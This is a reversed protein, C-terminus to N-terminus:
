ANYYKVRQSLPLFASIKRLLANRSALNKAYKILMHMSRYSAILKSLKCNQKSNLRKRTITLVKTKDENITLKNASAWAQIE